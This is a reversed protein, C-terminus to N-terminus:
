LKMAKIKMCEPWYTYKYEKFILLFDLRRLEEKLLARLDMLLSYLQEMNQVRLEINVSSSGITRYLYVVYLTNALFSELQKEVNPSLISLDLRVFYWMYGLNKMGVRTSPRYLKIVKKKELARLHYVVQDRSLSLKKAIDVIPMRADHVLAGLLQFDIEHLKVFSSKERALTYVTERKKEYLFSQPIPDDFVLIDIVYTDIYQVYTKKLTELLQAVDQYQRVYVKLICDYSGMCKVAWAIHPNAVFSSFIEEEKDIDINRLRIYVLYSEWGLKKIDIVTNIRLLVKEDLMRKVRYAVVEKSLGVNKAM